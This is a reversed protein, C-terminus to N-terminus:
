LVKASRARHVGSEIRRELESEPVASFRRRLAETATFFGPESSGRLRIYLKVAERVLGSRSLHEERAVQDLQALFDSPMSLYVKAYPSEV